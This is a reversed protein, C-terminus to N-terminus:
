PRVSVTGLAVSDGGPAGNQTVPLRGGDQTYLGVRVQYEGAPLDAPLMPVAVDRVTEGRHWFSTPYFGDLPQSDAQAVLSGDPAVLHVFRTYDHPSTDTAQWYLAVPMPKGPVASAPLDAGVLALASGVRADLPNAPAPARTGASEVRVYDLVLSEGVPAGEQTVALPALTEPDYIMFRLQYVGPALDAPFPIRHGDPLVDRVAWKSTPFGWPWGDHQAVVAGDAGVIRLSVSYNQEMPALAQLYITVGLTDGPTLVERELQTALLRILGGFDAQRVRENYLFPPPPADATRYVWAYPIGQREVVYEPEVSQFYDILESSPLQRQVQNAYIVVYDTSLWTLVNAITSSMTLLRSQGPFFYDFPGDAYWAAVRLNAADPRAALYRAAADLGEGWGFFIQKQAVRPGGLLPSYFDIYYPALPLAWAAQLLVAGLLGARSWHPWAAGCRRLWTALGCLLWWLGAAAIITLAPHIPLLYRDFKKAGVSMFTLFAVAWLALTLVPAVWAGGGSGGGLKGQALDFPQPPDHRWRLLALLALVSGVAVVPTLRWLLAVPYFLLGPDNDVVRGMFFNANVHGGVAYDEAATVIGRLSGLPDVWMAPWLLVFVLSAVVTWGLMPVVAERWARRWWPQTPDDRRLAEALALLGLFPALFLTPSKTLWALAAAVASAALLVRSRGRWLWVLFALLALTAFGTALADVHLLRSLGLFFPDLAILATASFALWEDDFLRRVLPYCLAVALATALAVYRRGAALVDIPQHGHARLWPEIEEDKWGFQPPSQAIYDPFVTRFGLAGLWMTTVGPHERQFTRAFEGAALAQWFNGSRALWKREDTTVFRDPAVSRPLWALAFLVAVILVTRRSDALGALPSPRM